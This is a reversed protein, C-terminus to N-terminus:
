LAQHNRFESSLKALLWAMEIKEHIRKAYVDEPRCVFPQWPICRLKLPSPRLTANESLERVHALTIEFPDNM